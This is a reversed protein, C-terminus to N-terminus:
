SCLPRQFRDPRFHNVTLGECLEQAADALDDIVGQALDPIPGFRLVSPVAWSHGLRDRCRALQAQSPSLPQARGEDGDPM